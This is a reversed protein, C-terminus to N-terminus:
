KSRRLYKSKLARAEYNVTEQSVRKWYLYIFVSLWILPAIIALILFFRLGLFTVGQYRFFAFLLGNIALLMLGIAAPEFIRNKPPYNGIFFKNYILVFLGFMFYVVFIAFIPMAQQVDLGGPNKFWFDFQLNIYNSINTLM